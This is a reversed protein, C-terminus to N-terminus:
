CILIPDDTAVFGIRPEFLGTAALLGREALIPSVSVRRSNLTSYPALLSIFIPAISVGFATIVGDMKVVLSLGLLKM